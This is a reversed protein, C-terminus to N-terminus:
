PQQFNEEGGCSNTPCELDIQLGLKGFNSTSALFLGITIKIIIIIFLILIM